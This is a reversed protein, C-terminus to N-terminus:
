ILIVINLKQVQEYIMSNLAQEEYRVCIHDTKNNNIKIFEQYIDDLTKGSQILVCM